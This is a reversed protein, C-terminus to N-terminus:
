CLVDPEEVRGPQCLVRQLARLRPEMHQSMKEWGQREIEEKSPSVLQKFGIEEM